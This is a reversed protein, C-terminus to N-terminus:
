YRCINVKDAVFVCESLPNEMSIDARYGLEFEVWELLQDDTCEMPRVLEINIIIREM